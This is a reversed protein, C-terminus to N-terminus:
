ANRWLSKGDVHRWIPLALIVAILDTLVAELCFTAQAIALQGCADFEDTPVGMRAPASGKVVNFAVQFEPSMIISALLKQGEVYDSDSQNFFM